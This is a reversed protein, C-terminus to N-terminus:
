RQAASLLPAFENTAQSLTLRKPDLSRKPVVVIDLPLLIEEQHRRFFDRVVRKIRNRVVAPGMKRNVTLGMRFGDPRDDRRLVFM